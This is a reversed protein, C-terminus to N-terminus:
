PSYQAYIKTKMAAKYFVLFYLKFYIQKEYQLWM